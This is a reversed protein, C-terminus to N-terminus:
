EPILQGPQPKLKATIRSLVSCTHHAVREAAIWPSTQMVVMETFVKLWSESARGHDSEHMTCSECTQAKPPTPTPM